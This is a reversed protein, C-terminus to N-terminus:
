CCPCSESSILSGSMPDFRHLVIEVELGFINKTKCPGTEHQLSTQANQINEM